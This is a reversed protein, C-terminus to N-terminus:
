HKLYQRQLLELDGRAQMLEFQQKLLKAHGVLAGKRSIQIWPTREAVVLPVGLLDKNSSSKAVAAMIPDMPGIIADVRGGILMRVGQLFDNTLYKQIKPNSDILESFKGGRLYAIRKDELSQISDLSSGKLGVVVTKLTPLPAIYVVYENLEPYKFMIALDARGSKLGRRIRTYPTITNSVEFGATTALRNALDYYIGSAVGDKLIGYPPFGITRIEVKLPDLSRVSGSIGLLFLFLLGVKHRHFRM